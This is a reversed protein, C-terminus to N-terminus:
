IIIMMRANRVVILAFLARVKHIVFKSDQGTRHFHSAKVEAVLKPMNPPSLDTPVCIFHNDSSPRPGFLRHIPSFHAFDL